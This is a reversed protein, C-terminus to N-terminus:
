SKMRASLVGVDYIFQVRRYGSKCVILDLAIQLLQLRNRSQRRVKRTRVRTCVDVNRGITSKKVTGVATVVTDSGELDICSVTLQSEDRVFWSSALCRAIERNIWSSRKQQHCILVRVVNDSEPPILFGPPKTCGSM